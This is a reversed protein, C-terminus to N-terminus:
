KNWERLCNKDNVANIEAKIKMTEEWMMRWTLKNDKFQHKSVLRWDEIGIYM